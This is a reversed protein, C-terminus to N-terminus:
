NRAEDLIKRVAQLTPLAKEVNAMPFAAQFEVFSPALAAVAKNRVRRGKETISVIKGRGDDPNSRIRIFGKAELKQLTNTMAGKTVQFASALQAPTRTGGLRVFNSLVSFHSLRLGDPLSREMQATALQNIIGIENFFVFLAPDGEAPTEPKKLTM